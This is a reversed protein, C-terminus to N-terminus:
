PGVEPQSPASGGLRLGASHCEYNRFNREVNVQGATSAGTKDYDRGAGPIMINVISTIDYPALKFLFKLYVIVNQQGTLTIHIM